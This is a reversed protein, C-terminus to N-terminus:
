IKKTKIEELVERIFDDTKMMGMDKGTRPRVAISDNEMEKDGIVLMYPIKEVQADRIKAQMREPRVDIEVRLGLEKMKSQVGKAYEVHKEGIPIIKAHVPSLWLPFVGAYREILLAIIREIAGISSRHIVIPEEDNGEENTFKLEFRKPMVFDYQVTFATEEKGLINRMQIDIKPGYFAAEAPAEVSKVSRTKLVERLQDEAYDWAKDDKFYKEENKRDGLSLRYSYDENPKLGFVGAAYEILDLAKNIEDIAQEKKAIIHADALCFSRVRMLGSLEGSQEYRYLKALEAIRMPLERYSRKQSAYIQFHHPCTMPRLMYEEEEITIPAYMSDKYYPYHGSKKYLDIKAIDPTYVHEYGRKIEEDVIFRELERRITAGKVTWLPLGKGVLDSFLFLGLEKGLTRHDRRKAEELLEFYKDLEEESDFEVGYVRQLVPRKEDGRWYASAVTTLKFIGIKGTSEVHPGKCMDSFQDGTSFFSIKEDPIEHLLEAKYTQGSINLMNLAEEKEIFKQSLPLDKKKIEYMKDEIAKLDDMGLTNPLEFDYYFGNEIAPGIGLKAGPYLELVAQALVHASTHRKKEIDSVLKNDEEHEKYSKM